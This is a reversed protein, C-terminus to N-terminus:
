KWPVYYQLTLTWNRGPMPRAPLIYYDVDTVNLLQLRVQWNSKQYGLSVDLIQFHPMYASNDNQIYTKGNFNWAIQASFARYTYSPAFFVKGLPVYPIRNGTTNVSEIISELQRADTYSAGLEINLKKVSYRIQGELGRNRVSRANLPSFINGVPLWLIYNEIEMWYASASFKFDDTPQYTGNWEGSFSTEPKLDPNGGPNWYRDNFTPLRLNRGVLVAHTWKQNDSAYLLGVSGAPWYVQNFSCDWRLMSQAQWNKSIKWDFQGFLNATENDRIYRQNEGRDYRFDLGVRVNWSGFSRSHETQAYYSQSLSPALIDSEDERYLIGWFMAGIRQTHNWKRGMKMREFVMTHIQDSQTTTPYATFPAFNAVPPIHRDVWTGRYHMDWYASDQNQWRVDQALTLNQWQGNPMRFTSDYGPLEFPFNEVASQFRMQTQAKFRNTGYVLGVGSGKQGFSGANISLEIGERNEFDSKLVLAGGTNGSGYVLARSGIHLEADSFGSQFLSFDQLGLMPSRMSIGNWIVDTHQAQTGRVSLTALSGSSFHKVYVESRQQLQDSLLTFDSTTDSLEITKGLFSDGFRDIVEVEPLVNEQAAALFAWCCAGITLIKRM